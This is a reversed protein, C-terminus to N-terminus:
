SSDNSEQVKEHLSKEHLTKESILKTSLRSNKNM